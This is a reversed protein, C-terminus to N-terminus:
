LGIRAAEIRIMDRPPRNIGSGPAVLRPLLVELGQYGHARGERQRPLQFIDPRACHGVVDFDYKSRAIEGLDLEATLAGNENFLPGALAQGLPRVFASGGRLIVTQPDNGQLAEYDTPCESRRLHQCATLVLCRGELAVHQMTSLWTWGSRSFSARSYVTTDPVHVRLRDPRGVVKALKASTIAAGSPCCSAV